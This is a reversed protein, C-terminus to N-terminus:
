LAWVSIVNEKQFFLKWSKEEYLSHWYLPIMCLILNLVIYTLKDHFISFM